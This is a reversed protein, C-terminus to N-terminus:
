SCQGNGSPMSEIKASQEEFNWGMRLELRDLIGYRILTTNHITRELKINNEEFSEYGGGTEVQLYGKPVVTPSETADPRDTVMNDQANVACLTELILVVSLFTQIAIKSTKIV